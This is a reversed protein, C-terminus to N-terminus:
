KLSLLYYTLRLAKDDSLGYNPMIVDELMGQPSKLFRYLWASTLRASAHTLEPGVEGGQDGIKHCASCGLKKYLSKGIRMDKKNINKFKDSSIKKAAIIKPRKTSLGEFDITEDKYSHLTRIFAIIKWIETESLTNGYPPMRASKEIAKGGLSIVEFLDQNKQKVMYKQDSLDRPVPDLNASNFGDGKGVNGHCSACYHLFLRHGKAVPKDAVFPQVLKQREILYDESPTEFDSFEDVFSENSYTKFYHVLRVAEEHSFGFTPMRTKFARRPPRIKRPKMLFDFLYKTQVRAGEYDLLPALRGGKGGITHCGRCNYKRIIQLGEELYNTRESFQKYEKPVRSGNLSKLFVVLANIEEDTFGFNPMKDLVRETAFSAPDKLKTRIWSEWTKDIRSDGFELELLRKVGFTTLDPAIRGENEMGNIEHCAFCGRRKIVKEGYAILGPSKIREEIEEIDKRKGLTILYTAIQRAEIKSLRFNPMITKPDYQKPNLLWNYIWDGNVKGAIMSLDPAFTGGNGNIMHCGLCGINEVLLRGKETDSVPDFKLALRYDKDSQNMLYVAAALADKDTLGFFPMKTRILYDKPKKIWRFLWSPNVKNAIKKLSPAVTEINEYGQVLHCGHCGLKLFLQKGKSLVPAHKLEVVDDHCMRCNSQMFDGKLLPENQGITQDGEHHMQGHAQWVSSIAVGQGKHCLTCGFKRAPHKKILLDLNPHTALPQQHNVFDLKDYSIHCSMCRDVRLLPERFNNINFGKIVVQYVEPIKYFSFFFLSKKFGSMKLKLREIDGEFSLLEKELKDKTLSYSELNAKIEDRQIKMSAIFPKYSDIEGQIKDVITKKPEWEEGEHLAHKYFYYAEDLRSKAFKVGQQVDGLKYNVKTLKKQLDKYDNNEELELSLKNTEEILEKKRTAIKNSVEILEKEAKESAAKYYEKQYAKWPRRAFLEDQWTWASVLLSLSGIVFFVFSYSTKEIPKYNNRAM